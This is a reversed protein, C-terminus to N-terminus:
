IDQTCIIIQGRDEPFIVVVFEGRVVFVLARETLHREMNARALLASRLNILVCDYVKVMEVAFFNGVNTSQPSFTQNIKM